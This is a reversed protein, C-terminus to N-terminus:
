QNKSMHRCNGKRQEEKTNSNNGKNCVFSGLHQGKIELGRIRWTGESPPRGGVGGAMMPLQCTAARM